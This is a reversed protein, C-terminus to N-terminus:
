KKLTLPASATARAGDPGTGTVILTYRGRKLRKGKVTVTGNGDLTALSGKAVTKEGKVLRAAIGTMAQNSTIGVKLGRSARRASASRTRITLQPGAPQQPQAPAPPGAPLAGGAGVPTLLAFGAYSADNQPMEKTQVYVVYTGKAADKFRITAPFKDASEVYTVAGDPAEVALEVLDSAPGSAVNNDATVRLDAQDAVTFRVSDCVPAPCVPRQGTERGVEWTPPRGWGAAEGTWDFRPQANSIEGSEPTGAVAPAATVAVAAVAFLIFHERAM